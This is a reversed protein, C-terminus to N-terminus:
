IRLQIIEEEITIHPDLTDKEFELKIILLEMPRDGDDRRPVPIEVVDKPCMAMIEEKTFEALDRSYVTGLQTLSRILNQKISHATQKMQSNKM